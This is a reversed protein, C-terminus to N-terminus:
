RLLLAVIVGLLFLVLWGLTAFLLTLAEKKLGNLYLNIPRILVLSGTILASVVFLLLAFMPVLVSNQQAFIKQSNFGLWAVGSVYILTGAASLFSKVLYDAKKM